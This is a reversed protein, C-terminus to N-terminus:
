SIYNINDSKGIYDLLKMKAYIERGGLSRWMM